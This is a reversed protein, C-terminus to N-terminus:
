EKGQFIETIGPVKCAQEETEKSLPAAGSTTAIVSSLDYKAVLPSKVLFIVLPPVLALM